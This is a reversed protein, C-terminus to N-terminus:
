GAANICSAPSANPPDKPHSMDDALRILHSHDVATRARPLAAGARRLSPRSPDIVVPEMRAGSSPQRSVSGPGYM